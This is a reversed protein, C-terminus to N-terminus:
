EYRSEVIIIRSQKVRAQVNAQSIEHAFMRRQMKILPDGENEKYEDKIEKHDMRNQKLFFRREVFYELGACMILVLWVLAFGVIGSSVVVYGMPGFDLWFALLLKERSSYLVAVVLLVSFMFPMFMFLGKVSGRKLRSFIQEMQLFNLNFGKYEKFIRFRAFFLQILIGTLMAMVIPVLLWSVLGGLISWSYSPEIMFQGSFCQEIVGWLYGISFQVVVLITVLAALYNGSRALMESKIYDGRKRLKELKAPTPEFPKEM